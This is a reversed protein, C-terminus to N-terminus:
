EYEKKKASLFDQMYEINVPNLDPHPTEILLGREIEELLALQSQKLAEIISNYLEEEDGDEMVYQGNFEQLGHKLHKVHLIVQHALNRLLPSEEMTKPTHTM